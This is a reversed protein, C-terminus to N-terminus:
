ELRIMLLRGSAHARRTDPLRKISVYPLLRSTKLNTKKRHVLRTRELLGLYLLLRVYQINKVHQFVSESCM